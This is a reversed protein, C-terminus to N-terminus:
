QAVSATCHPEIPEGVAAASQNLEEQVSGRKVIRCAACTSVMGNSPNLGM